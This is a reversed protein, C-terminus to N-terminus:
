NEFSSVPIKNIRKAEGVAITLKMIASAIPAFLRRAPLIRSKVVKPESTVIVIPSKISKSDPKIQFIQLQNRIISIKISLLYSQPSYILFNFNYRKEKNRKEKKIIEHLVTGMVPLFCSESTGALWISEM